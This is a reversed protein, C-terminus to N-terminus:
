AVVAGLNFMQMRLYHRTVATNAKNRHLGKSSSSTTSFIHLSCPLLLNSSTKHLGVPCCLAQLHLKLSVVHKSCLLHAAVFSARYVKAVPQPSISSVGSRRQGKEELNYKFNRLMRGAEIERVSGKLGHRLEGARKQEAGSKKGGKDSKKEREEQRGWHEENEGKGGSGM